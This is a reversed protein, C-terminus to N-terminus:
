LTGRDANAFKGIWWAVEIGRGPLEHAWMM